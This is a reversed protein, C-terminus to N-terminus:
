PITVVSVIDSEPGTFANDVYARVKYLRTEPQGAVLPATSDTFTEQTSIGLLAYAGGGRSMYIGVTANGAMFLDLEVISGAQAKASDIAVDQAGALAGIVGLSQGIAVTFNNNAKIQDVLKRTRAQIAALAGLAAVVAPPLTPVPPLGTGLPANVIIERYATVEKSYDDANNAADNCLIIMDRDAAAQTLQGASIGLTVSHTNLQAVFNQYWAVLDAWRKPWYDLRAM